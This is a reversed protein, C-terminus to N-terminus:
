VNSQVPSAVLKANESSLQISVLAESLTQGSGDISSLFRVLEKCLEYDEVEMAKSLLRITDQSSDASPELTHLVLLYSTATKLLGTSMCKEFLDKPSGVISFLYDWLAVETKRACGVIADLAQPFHSLFKVVRPLVAGHGTGVSLEAEDELVHHLLVELAHGFYVLQEYSRAFAVAEEDLGRTLMYRIIYQLFLHTNTAFKFVAFDLSSRVSVQQEAGVIIGKDLLVSLPYFGLKISLAEKPAASIAEDHWSSAIEDDSWVDMWINVSKGDCAWLSNKLSGIGRNAMWYFEIRDALVHLDYQVEGADSKQPTLLVLKGDILFIITAAQMSEPTFATQAKPQFWSISRVRAAAHIVGMFSIQQALELMIIGKGAENPPTVMLYHYMLNDDCYALLANEVITLYLVNSPVRVCQIMHINDLNTERSYSRIEYTHTRMNECAAFLIQRFWLLGGRVKFEKEQQQNGFLKWRGSFVNYHALGRRGAIAIYRGDSSISAYKIPWNDSIYMIPIQIHQWVIADPNIASLDEQDGGRYLLLRDDMQLFGRKANDSSHFGTVASRAFPITYLQEETSTTAQHLVFLECNGSSWFMDNVGHVFADQCSTQFSQLEEDQLTSMLLRGYVSWLALGENRWGVALAYGDSTWALSTVAGTSVRTKEGITLKHSFYIGGIYNKAYYLYVVGGETGVAILSFKANISIRTAKMETPIRSEGVGHICFGSWYIPPAKSKEEQSSRDEVFQAAYAKGDTTIWGYLDMKHDYCIHLISAGRSEVFDLRGLINTKTGRPEAQWPICQIAPPNKTTVVLYDETGVGTEMGADIRITMRFKLLFTKIGHGEGAGTAYHHPNKGFQYKFSKDDFPLVSYTLLCNQTTQVIVLTGDPKWFVNENAGYEGISKATRTIQSILATPRFSWLQISDKTLTIFLNGSKNRRMHLIVPSVGIKEEGEENVVTGKEDVSEVRLSNTKSVTLVKAIGSTWYM